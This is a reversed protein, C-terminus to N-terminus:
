YLKALFINNNSPRMLKLVDHLHRSGLVQFENVTDLSLDLKVFRGVDLEGRYM